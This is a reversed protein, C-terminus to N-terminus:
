QPSGDAQTARISCPCRSSPETASVSRGVCAFRGMATARSRMPFLDAILSDSAPSTGGEGAGVGVRALLLPWFSTALGCLATMASFVVGSWTINRARDSRDALRAIVLGVTSFFVTFAFGSLLGLATDSLALEAKIPPILIALLPRDLFHGRLGCRAACAHGSARPRECARHAGAPGSTSERRARSAPRCEVRALRPTRVIRAALM